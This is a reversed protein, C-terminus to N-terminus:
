RRVGSCASSGRRRRSGAAAQRGSCVAARFDQPRRGAGPFVPFGRLESAAPPTVPGGGRPMSGTQVSHRPVSPVQLRINM